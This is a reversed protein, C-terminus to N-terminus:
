ECGACDNGSRNKAIEGVVSSLVNKVGENGRKRPQFATASCESFPLLVDPPTDLFPQLGLWM